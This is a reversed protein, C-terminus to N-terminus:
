CILAVDSLRFISTVFYCVFYCHLFTTIYCPFLGLVNLFRPTPAGFDLGPPACHLDLPVLMSAQFGVPHTWVIKKNSKLHLELADQPSFTALM